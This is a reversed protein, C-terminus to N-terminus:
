PDDRPRTNRYYTHYHPSSWVQCGGRPGFKLCMRIGVRKTRDLVALVVDDARWETSQGFSDRLDSGLRVLNTGGTSEANAALGAASRSNGVTGVAAALLVALAMPRRV